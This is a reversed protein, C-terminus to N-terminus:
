ALGLEVIRDGNSGPARVMELVLNYRLVGDRSPEPRAFQSAFWEIQFVEAGDVIRFTGNNLAGAAHDNWADMAAAFGGELQVQLTPMQGEPPKVLRQDSRIGGGAAAAGGNMAALGITDTYTWDTVSYTVGGITLPAVEQRFRGEDSSFATPITGRASWSTERRTFLSEGAFRVMPIRGPGGTITLENFLAGRAIMKRWQSDDINLLYKVITASPSNAMNGTILQRAYTVDVLADVVPTYGAALWLAQNPSGQNVGTKHFLDTEVVVTNHSGTVVKAEAGMGATRQPPRDEVYQEEIEVNRAQLWEGAGPASGSFADTYRTTESKAAAIFGEAGTYNSM